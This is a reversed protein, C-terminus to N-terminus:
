SNEAWFNQYIFRGSSTCVFNVVPRHVDALLWVIGRFLQHLASWLRCPLSQCQLSALMVVCFSHQLEKTYRHLMQVRQHHSYTFTTNAAQQTLAASM